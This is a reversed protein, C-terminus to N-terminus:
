KALLKILLANIEAMQKELDRLRCDIKWLQSDVSEPHSKMPPSSSVSDEINGNLLKVTDIKLVKSLHELRELTPRTAGAEWQRVAGQSVGLEHALATQTFGVAKRARRIAEGLDNM